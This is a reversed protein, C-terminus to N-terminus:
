DEVLEGRVEVFEGLVHVGLGGVGVSCDAFEGLCHGLEGGHGGGADRLGLLM